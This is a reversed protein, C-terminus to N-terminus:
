TRGKATLWAQVTPDDDGVSVAAWRRVQEQEETHAQAGDTRGDTSKSRLGDEISPPTATATLTALDRAPDNVSTVSPREERERPAPAPAPERAHHQGDAIAPAIAPAITEGYTTSDTQWRKKAGRKGAEIKQALREALQRRSPNYDLYDPILYGDEPAVLQEQIGDSATLTFRQKRKVTAWAAVDVLVTALKGAGLTGVWSGPVFGDTTYAACYSLAAAYLGRAAWGAAVLKPHSHFTDDLLAYPM